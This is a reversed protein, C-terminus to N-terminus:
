IQLFKGGYDNFLEELSYDAEKRFIREYGVCDKLDYGNCYFSRHAMAVIWPRKERNEPLNAKALDEKLWNFQAQIQGTGFQTYYYFETSYIIFHINNMNFSYYHNNMNGSEQDIMTFRNVYQSFNNKREHNGAAVQYSVRSALPEIEHM